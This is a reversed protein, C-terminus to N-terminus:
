LLSCIKKYWPESVPAKVQVRRSRLDRVISNFIDDIRLNSAASTEFYPVGFEEALKKGEETTVLRNSVDVKNAVLIVTPAKRKDRMDYRHVIKAHFDRLVNLSHALSVDFVLIIGDKGDIWHDILPFYDEMGATDLISITTPEGDIIANKTYYDEITPDYIPVFKNSTYRLTIASKGVAAAGLMAVVYKKSARAGGGSKVQFPEGQSVYLVAGDTLSEFSNLLAGVESFIKKARIGLKKSSTELMQEKSIRTNILVHVGQTPHQENKYLMVRIENAEVM